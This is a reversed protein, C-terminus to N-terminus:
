GVREDKVLHVGVDPRHGRGDPLDRVGPGVRGLCDFVDEGLEFSVAEDFGDGGEARGLRTLEAAAELRPPPLARFAPWIRHPELVTSLGNVQQNEKCRHGDLQCCRLSAAM